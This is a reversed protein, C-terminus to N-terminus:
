GENLELVRPDDLEYTLIGQAAADLCVPSEISYICVLDLFAEADEVTYSVLSGAGPNHQLAVIWEDANECTETTAMLADDNDLDVVAAASEMAAKCAASVNRSEALSCAALAFTALLVSAALGAARYRTMRRVSGLPSVAAVGAM